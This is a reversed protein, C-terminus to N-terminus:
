GDARVLGRRLRRREHKPACRGPKGEKEERDREPDRPGEGRGGRAALVPDVRAGARGGPSAEGACGDEQGRAGARVARRVRPEDREAVKAGGERPAGREPGEGPEGREAAEELRGRKGAPDLGGREAGQEPG